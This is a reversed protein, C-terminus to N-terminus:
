ERERLDDGGFRERPESESIVIDPITLPPVVLDAMSRPPPVTTDDLAGSRVLTKLRALARQQDAPVIVPPDGPTRTSHRGGEPPLRTARRASGGSPPLWGDVGGTSVAPLPTAAPTQVAEMPSEPRTPTATGPPADPWALVIVFAVAAAAALAAPWTRRVVPSERPLQDLTRASFGQTATISLADRLLGEAEGISRREYDLAERCVVCV